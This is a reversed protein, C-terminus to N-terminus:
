SFWQLKRQTIDTYYIKKWGKVKLKVIDKYKFHTKHLIAYLQTM